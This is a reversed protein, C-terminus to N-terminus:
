QGLTGPRIAKVADEGCNLAIIAEAFPISYGMSKGTVLNGDVTVGEGTYEGKGSQFGPFCTYRRGELLGRRALLSPAACIAHVQKNPNSWYAMILATVADSAFLNDVGKKGGPLILMDFGLPDFDEVDAFCVPAVVTVGHSSVVAKSASISCLTPQILHSRCLIDYTTLAETTEFGDALLILATM